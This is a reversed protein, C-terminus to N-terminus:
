LAIKILIKVFYVLAVWFTICFALIGILGWNISITLLIREFLNKTKM